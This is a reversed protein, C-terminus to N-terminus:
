YRLTHAFTRPSVYRLARAFHVLLFHLQGAQRMTEVHGDFGGRVSDEDVFLKYRAENQALYSCVSERIQAHQNPNGYIQDSLARFMCNGDGAVNSIMLGRSALQVKILNEEGSELLRPKDSRTKSRARPRRETRGM